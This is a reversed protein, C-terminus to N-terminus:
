KAARYGAKIADAETMWQGHETKGYWRDGEKHYIKSDTNCWVMGPQPPTQAPAANGKEDTPQVVVFPTIKKITSKPIGSRSLDDVSKYPRNAIIKKSYSDGIGPLTELEDATASNLDVESPPGEEVAGTKGVPKVTVLSSIKGIESESVGASKLDDVSNYPRGAVIKKATAPGVGPLTELEEVSASNLDVAEAPNEKHAAPTASEAGATVLPTIKAIESASVGASKLDDVSNYPRGAIIKKATASGVGPLQELEQASATNLDVKEAVEGSSGKGAPKVEVLPEIKKITSESIGAGKLDSVSQYPRGAIIKKATASGVGPLQELEEATASNLDVKVDSDSSEPKSVKVLPKIKKITSESVGVAKLDNVSKYPRGAIIKNATVDGIGPLTELEDATATNLDIKASSSQDSSAGVAEQRAITTLALFIFIGFPIFHKRM